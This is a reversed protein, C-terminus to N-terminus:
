RLTYETCKCCKTKDNEEGLFTSKTETLLTTCEKWAIKASDTYIHYTHIQVAKCHERVALVLKSAVRRSTHM